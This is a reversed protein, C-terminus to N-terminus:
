DGLLLKPSGEFICFCEITEPEYGWDGACAAVAAQKVYEKVDGNWGVMPPEIEAVWTTGKRSVQRCLATYKTAEETPEFAELLYAEVLAAAMAKAIDLTSASAEYHGNIIIPLPDGGTAMIILVEGIPSKARVTCTDTAFWALPKIRLSPTM